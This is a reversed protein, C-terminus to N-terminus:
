QARAEPRPLAAIVKRYEPYMTAAGGRTAEYPIGHKQSYEVLFANQGPLYHPFYGKPFVTEIVSECPYPGM